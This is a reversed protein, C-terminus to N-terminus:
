VRDEHVHFSLVCGTVMSWGTYLFTALWIAELLLIVDPRWLTRLGGILDAVPGSGRLALVCAIAFAVTVLSMGQYVTMRGGGRHDARLLESFARWAQSLALTVILAAAFRDQLFLLMGALGASLYLVSTMAQVPVVRVGEMGSAYAIKKTPGRFTISYPELWRRWPEPLEAVPRGYCCGFSICGLRGLGEGLVYAVSLAALTALMPIPAGPLAGLALIALPTVAVGVFSAGAVSFTHAKGEIWRATLKAAPACFAAVIAFLPLTRSTPLGIAGALLLFVAVATAASTATFVGYYTLNTGRWAGDPEKRRPITAAIQWREEHLRVLSWRVLALAALALLLVFLSEPM